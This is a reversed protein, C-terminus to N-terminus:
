NETSKEVVENLRRLFEDFDIFEDIKGDSNWENRKEEVLKGYLSEDYNSDNDLYKKTPVSWELIKYVDYEDNLELYYYYMAVLLNMALITISQRNAGRKLAERMAWNMNYAFGELGTFRYERNNKRTISEPNENYVYTINEIYSYNDQSLLFLVRNFGNDENARTNNFHVDHKKIFDRRYIKGHLWTMDHDMVKIENDRTYLFASHLLDNKREIISNYLTIVSDFSYFYDDSDIFMIYESNSNQIGYERAGGPGVNEPTRLEKIKIFNSFFNIFFSYDYDSCDNVLYVNIDECREQLCISSLTKAITKKANYCPIIIDLNM